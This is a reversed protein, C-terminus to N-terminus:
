WCDLRGYAEVLHQACVGALFLDAQRSLRGAAAISQRLVAVVEEDSLEEHLPEFLMFGIKAAWGVLVLYSCFSPQPGPSMGPLGIASWLLPGALTGAEAAAGLIAILAEM